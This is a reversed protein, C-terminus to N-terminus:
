CRRPTRATNKAIADYDVPSSLANKAALEAALEEHYGM